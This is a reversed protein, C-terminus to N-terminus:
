AAQGDPSQPSEVVGADEAKRLWKEPVAWAVAFGALITINVAEEVTPHYGTYRNLLGISLGSVSGGLLGAAPKTQISQNM